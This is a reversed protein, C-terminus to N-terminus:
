SCVTVSVKFFRILLPPLRIALENSSKRLIENGNDKSSGQSTAKVIKINSIVIEIPKINTCRINFFGITFLKKLRVSVRDIKIEDDGLKMQIKGVSLFNVREFVIERNLCKKM